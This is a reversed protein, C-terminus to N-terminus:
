TRRRPAPGPKVAAKINDIETEVATLRNTVALNLATIKDNLAEIDAATAPRANGVPPPPAPAPEPRNRMVLFMIITVLGPVLGAEFAAAIQEPSIL